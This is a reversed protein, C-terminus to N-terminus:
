AGAVPLQLGEEMRPTQYTRIVASVRSTVVVDVMDESVLDNQQINDKTTRDYDEVTVIIQLRHRM